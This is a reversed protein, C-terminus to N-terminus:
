IKCFQRASRAGTGPTALDVDGAVRAAQLGALGALELAQSLTTERRLPENGVLERALERLERALRAPLNSDQDVPAARHCV